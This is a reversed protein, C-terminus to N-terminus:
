CFFSLLFLVISADLIFLDKFRRAGDGGGFIVLKGDIVTATHALRCSPTSNTLPLNLKTWDLSFSFSLLFCDVIGFFQFLCVFCCSVFMSHSHSDLAWLDNLIKAGDGGGFMLFRREKELYNM